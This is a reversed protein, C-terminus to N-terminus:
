HKSMDHGAHPDGGTQKAPKDCCAMKKGDKMKACCDQRTGDAKKPCCDKHQEHAKGHGAHPDATQAFAPSAITLAIAAILMKM